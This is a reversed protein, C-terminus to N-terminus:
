ENKNEFKNTISNTFNMSWKFLLDSFSNMADPNIAWFKDIIKDDILLEYEDKINEVKKRKVRKYIGLLVYINNEKEIIDKRIKYCRFYNVLNIYDYNIEGKIKDAFAKRELHCFISAIYKFTISINEYLRLKKFIYKINFFIEKATICSILLYCLIFASEELTDNLCSGYFDVKLRKILYENMFNRPFYSSKKIYKYIILIISHSVQDINNTHSELNYFFQNMLKIIINSSRNIKDLSDYEDFATSINKYKILDNWFNGQIDIIWNKLINFEDMKNEIIKKKRIIKVKKTYKKLLNFFYYIKMFYKILKWWIYNKKKMKVTLDPKRKKDLREETKSKKLMRDYFDKINTLKKWKEKKDNIPSLIANSNDFTEQIKNCIIFNSSDKKLNKHNNSKHIIVPLGFILKNTFLNNEFKSDKLYSLHHKHPNIKKEIPNPNTNLYPLKIETSSILNNKVQNNSLFSFNSKSNRLPSNYNFINRKSKNFLNERFENM